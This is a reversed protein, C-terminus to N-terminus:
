ERRCAQDDWAQGVRGHGGDNGAVEHQESPWHQLYLDIHDTKLRALSAEAADLVGQYSCNRAAVKTVLFVDDRMGAIAQGVVRESGGAAYDEATDILTLGQEIGFLLAEIEQKANREEEGFKWTGQGIAPVRVDTSGLKRQLMQNNM